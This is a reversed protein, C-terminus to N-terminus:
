KRINNAMSWMDDATRVARSSMEYARQAMILRTMEELLSVNSQELFKQRISGYGESEPRGPLPEGSNTTAQWLNKGMAALGESNQFRFLQIVGEGMVEGEEDFLRFVGDPNIEIGTFAWGKMEQPLLDAAYGDETVLNSAGDLRFAGARTFVERGDPLVVRFFGEGEIALDLERNTEQLIGQLFYTRVASPQVGQGILLNEASRPVVPEGVGEAARYALDQFQVDTKKFATTNINAVNNAIVDIKLSQALMGSASNWLKRIM